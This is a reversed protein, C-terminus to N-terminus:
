RNNVETPPAYSYILIMAVVPATGISFEKNQVFDWLVVKVQVWKVEGVEAALKIIKKYIFGIRSSSNSNKLM